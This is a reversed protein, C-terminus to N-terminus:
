YKSKPCQTYVLKFIYNYIKSLSVRLLKVLELGQSKMAETREKQVLEQLNNFNDPRKFLMPNEPPQSLARNGFHGGRLGPYDNTQFPLLIIDLM